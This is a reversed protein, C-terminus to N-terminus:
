EAKANAPRIVSRRAIGVVVDSSLIEQGVQAPSVRVVKSQNASHDAFLAEPPYREVGGLKPASKCCDFQCPGLHVRCCPVQTLRHNRSLCATAPYIDRSSDSACVRM